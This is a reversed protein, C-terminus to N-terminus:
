IKFIKFIKVQTALQGFNLQLEVPARYFNIHKSKDTTFYPCNESHASFSSIKIKDSREKFTPVLSFPDAQPLHSDIPM